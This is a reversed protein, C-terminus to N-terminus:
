SMLEHALWMIAIMAVLGLAAVIRGRMFREDNRADISGRVWALEILFVILPSNNM